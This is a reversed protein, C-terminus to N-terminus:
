QGIQDLLRVIANDIETQVEVPMGGDASTFVLANVAGARANDAQARSLATASELNELDARLRRPDPM